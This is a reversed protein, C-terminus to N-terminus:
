ICLCRNYMFIGNTQMVLMLIGDRKTWIFILM